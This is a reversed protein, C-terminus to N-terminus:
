EEVQASYRRARAAPFQRSDSEDISNAVVHHGVGVHSMCRAEASTLELRCQHRSDNLRILVYM